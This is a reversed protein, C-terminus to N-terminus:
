CDGGNGPIRSKEVVTVEQALKLSNTFQRKNEVMKHVALNIARVLLGM